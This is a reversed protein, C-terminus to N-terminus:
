LINYKLVIYVYCNDLPNETGAAQPKETEHRGKRM